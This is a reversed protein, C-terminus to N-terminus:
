SIRLWHLGLRHYVQLRILVAGQSGAGAGFADREGLEDPTESSRVEGLSMLQRGDRAVAVAAEDSEAGASLLVDTVIMIGM